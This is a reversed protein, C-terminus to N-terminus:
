FMRMKVTGTGQLRNLINDTTNQKKKNLICVQEVTPAKM